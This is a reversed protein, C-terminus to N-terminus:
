QVVLPNERRMIERNEAYKRYRAAADKIHGMTFDATEREQASLTLRKQQERAAPSSRSPPVATSTSRQQRQPQPQVPAAESGVDVATREGLAEEIWHFYEDTDAPIGQVKTAYEHAAFAKDRYGDDTKFRPHADIWEKTRQTMVPQAPQRSQEEAQRKAQEQDNKWQTKQQEVSRKQREIEAINYQTQARGAVADAMEAFKQEKGLREIESKWSNAENQAAQLANAIAVDQAYFRKSTEDQVTTEAQEARKALAEARENAALTERSVAEVQAKLAAIQEESATNKPEVAPEVPEVAVAEALNDEDPM